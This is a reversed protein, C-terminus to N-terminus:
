RAPAETARGPGPAIVALAGAVAVALVLVAHTAHVHEVIGGDLLLAVSASFVALNVLFAISAFLVSRRRLLIAGVALVAVAGGLTFLAHWQWAHTDNRWGDSASGCHDDCGLAAVNLLLFAWVLNGGVYIPGTLLSLRTAIGM